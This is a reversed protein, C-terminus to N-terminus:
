QQREWISQRAISLRLGISIFLFQILNEIAGSHISYNTQYQLIALLAHKRHEANMYNMTLPSNIKLNENYIWKVDNSHKLKCWNQTDSRLDIFMCQRITIVLLRIVLLFMTMSHAINKPKPEIAMTFIYCNFSNFACSISLFPVTRHSIQRTAIHKLQTSQISVAIDICACCVSKVLIFISDCLTREIVFWRVTGALCRVGGSFSFGM